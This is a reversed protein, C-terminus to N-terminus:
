RGEQRPEGAYGRGKREEAQRGALARSPLARGTLQPRPAAELEARGPASPPSRARAQRRAGEEPVHIHLGAAARAPEELDAPKLELEPWSPVCGLPALEAERGGEGRRRLM